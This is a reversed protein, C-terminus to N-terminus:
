AMLFGTKPAKRDPLVSLGAQEAVSSALLFRSIKSIAFIPILYCLHQDSQVFACASRCRQLECIVYVSKTM